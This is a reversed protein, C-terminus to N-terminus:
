IALLGYQDICKGWDGKALTHGNKQVWSGIPMGFPYKYKQHKVLHGTVLAAKKMSGKKYKGESSVDVPAASMAGSLGGTGRISREDESESSKTKWMVERPEHMTLPRDFPTLGANKVSEPNSLDAIQNWSGSRDFFGVSGPHLDTYRQPYYLFRGESNAKMLEAYQEALTKDPMNISTRCAILNQFHSDIYQQTLFPPTNFLDRVRM